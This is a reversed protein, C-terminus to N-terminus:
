WTRKSQIGDSEEMPVEKAAHTSEVPMPIGWDRLVEVTWNIRAGKQEVVVQVREAIASYSSQYWKSALDVKFIRWNQIMM